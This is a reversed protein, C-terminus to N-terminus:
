GIVEFNVGRHRVAASVTNANGPSSKYNKQSDYPFVNRLKNNLLVKMQSCKIEYAVIKQQITM